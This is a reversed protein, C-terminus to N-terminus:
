QGNAQAEISQRRQEQEAQSPVNLAKRMADSILERDYPEQTWMKGDKSSYQTGFVQQQGIKQLYRDLTASAIWIAEPKGRATAIMALTHAMLYDSPKDGHQFVFAAHYYDDASQLAGIKLLDSTRARRKDDEPGVISWDIDPGQRAAQDANFIATMEDNTAYEIRRYTAGSDLPGVPGAPDAARVLTFPDFPTGKYELTLSDEPGCRAIFRDPIHNPLPDEFAIEVGDQAAEIGIAKRSVITQSVKRFSDNSLSWNEPREWVASPQEGDDSITMRFVVTDGSLQDWSGLACPPITSSAAILALITAVM